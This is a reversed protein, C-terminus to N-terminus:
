LAMKNDLMIQAQAARTTMHMDDQKLLLSSPTCQLPLINAADHDFTLVSDQLSEVSVAPHVHHEFM